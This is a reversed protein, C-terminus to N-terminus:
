IKNIVEEIKAWTKIRENLEKKLKISFDLKTYRRGEKIIEYTVALDSLENIERISIDLVKRKFDQFRNYNDASLIRKLEQIEFIKRHQYEYSKLLEYLRISYQSKMALVYLLEYSTFKEQLQLLYPKMMDDIKIIVSGSNRNITVKDIWAITTESGDELSVWISRDRLEKLTQKIYRYNAGSNAELGCIKCFDRIEFVHEHLDMDEPKIKSILYLIVKQEQLSLRFRSKQILENSKVVKYNRLESIRAELEGTQDKM